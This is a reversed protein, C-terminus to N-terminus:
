GRMTCWARWTGVLGGVIMGIGTVFLAIAQGYVEGLLTIYIVYTTLLVGSLTILGGLAALLRGSRAAIQDGHTIEVRRVFHQVEHWPQGTRECLKQIISEHSRRAGLAHIVFQVSAQDLAAVPKEQVAPPADPGGAPREQAM